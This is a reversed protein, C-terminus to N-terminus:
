ESEETEAPEREDGASQDDRAGQKRLTRDREGFMRRPPPQDDVAGAGFRLSGADGSTRGEQVALVDMSNNDRYTVRLVQGAATSAVPGNIVTTTFPPRVPPADAMLSSALVGTLSSLGANAPAPKDPVGEEPDAPSFGLIESERANEMGAMMEDESSRMALTIKGKTQALHLKPVDEAKVLLTVSKAKTNTGEDNPDGLHQGVAAVQVKQLIVRSITEKRRGDKIDMVVLVDVFAGPLLQYAVGTVEDIKVSVARFGEEIKVGLGPLTGEPALLAPSMPSGALITKSAVRGVVEEIKEYANPPILPSAPSRKVVFMDHTLAMTPGIDATAVVVSVEPATTTNGQAKRIADVALKIALLGVGLGVVLPIVAKGKM